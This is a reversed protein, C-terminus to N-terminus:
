KKCGKHIARVAAGVQADNFSDIPEGLFDLLRGERQLLALLQVASDVRPKEPEPKAVPTPPLEKVPPPAPPLLPQLRKDAPLQKGFWILFFCKIALFFRM